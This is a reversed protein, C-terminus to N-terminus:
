ITVKVRDMIHGVHRKSRKETYSLPLKEKRGTYMSVDNLHSAAVALHNGHYNSLQVNNQAEIRDTM